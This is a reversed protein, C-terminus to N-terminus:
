KFFKGPKMNVSLLRKPLGRLSGRVSGRSSAADDTLVQAQRSESDDMGFDARDDDDDDCEVV